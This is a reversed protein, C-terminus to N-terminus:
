HQRRKLAGYMHRRFTYLFLLLVSLTLLYVYECRLGFILCPPVLIAYDSLHITSVNVYNHAVTFDSRPVEVWPDSPLSRTLITMDTRGQLREPLPLEIRIPSPFTHIENGAGDRAIINFFYGEGALITKDLSEGPVGSPTYPVHEGVYFPRGELLVGLLSAGPSVTTALTEIVLSIGDPNAKEDIIINMRDVAGWDPNFVTQVIKGAVGPALFTGSKVVRYVDDAIHEVQMRNGSVDTVFSTGTVFEGVETAIGGTGESGPAGIPFTAPPVTQTLSIAVPKATSNKQSLPPVSTVESPAQTLPLSPLSNAGEGPPPLTTPPLTTGGGVAGGGGLSTVPQVVSRASLPRWDTKVCKGATGCNFEIWGYNEAWAYGNFDGSASITVKANGNSVCNNTEPNACSFSIWGTNEGWAYGSLVGEPTNAVKFNSSGCSNTNSCNLSVWGVADGWAYGTLETDTVHIEHPSVSNFYLKQAVSAGFSYQQSDLFPATFNTTDITGNTISANVFTYPLLSLACLFVTSFLKM